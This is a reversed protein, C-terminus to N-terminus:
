DKGGEGGPTPDEGEQADALLALSSATVDRTAPRDRGRRARYLPETPLQGEQNESIEPHLLNTM